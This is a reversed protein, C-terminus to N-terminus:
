YWFSFYLRFVDAQLSYLPEQGVAYAPASGGVSMSKRADRFDDYSIDFHDWYFNATSKEFWPVTGKPLEYTVGLGFVNSSFPSLEKDRGWYTQSESYPFLDGYFNAETQEYVRFKAEFLWNDQYSHVYRLEYNSAEIGWSDTFTRADFRLSARWPMHYMLRIGAADSSRTQPYKEVEFGVGGTPTVFRVQRYPNNLCTGSDPLDLCQDTASDYSFSALLNKTLIQSASISYKRRQMNKKYTPDPVGNINQGIVDDGLSFGFGLTTLDGFFSQEVGLSYTTAEYDNEKSHVYGTNILSRDFVFQASFAQEKREEEYASATTEVDISASSVMDVYYNASVSVHAGLSKRVLVSPGDIQAGGGDYGHYMVDMREDPLVAAFTPFSFILFFFVLFSGWGAEGKGPPPTLGRGQYPSPQPPTKKFFSKKNIVVVVAELPVMVVARQNVLM